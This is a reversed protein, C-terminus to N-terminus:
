NTLEAAGYALWTQGAIAQKELPLAGFREELSRGYASLPRGRLESLQSEEFVFAGARVGAKEGTVLGLQKEYPSMTKPFARPLWGSTKWFLGGAWGFRSSRRTDREPSIRATERAREGTEELRSFDRLRLFTFDPYRRLLEADFRDYGYRYNGWFHFSMEGFHDDASETWFALRLPSPPRLRARVEKARADRTEVFAHRHRAIATWALLVCLIGLGAALATSRRGLEGGLMDRRARDVFLVMLPLVVASPVTNRLRIGLEAGPTVVVSSAITYCFALVLVGLFAGAALTDFTGRTAPALVPAGTSGRRLSRALLAAGTAFFAAVAFGAALVLAPNWRWLDALGSGLSAAFAGAPPRVEERQFTHLWVAPLRGLIPLTAVVYAAAFAVPLGLSFVGVAALRKPREAGDEKWARRCRGATLLAKGVLLSLLLPLFTMKVALGVGAAAGCLIGPLASGDASSLDKWFLSVAVLGLALSWSDAGYYGWYSMVPPWSLVLGLALSAAGLGAGRVVTVCFFALAGASALAVLGYALDFFRQTRSLDDGSLRLLVSSLYYVPTGPHHSSGVAGGTAILKANYYYDHEIDIESVTYPRPSVLRSHLVFLLPITAAAAM